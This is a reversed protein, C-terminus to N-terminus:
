YAGEYRAVTPNIRVVHRGHRLKEDLPGILKNKAINIFRDMEEGAKDNKGIMLIVDGEGPKDTRSGRLMNMPIWEMGEAEDRAQSAAIVPCNYEHGLGRAWLYARGIRLDDRDESGWTFGDVKDLQDFVILGPNFDKFLATLSKKDNLGADNRTILIRKGTREEFAKLCGDPDKNLEETTMGLSAQMNRFAVARSAEENNVWVVYRPDGAATMQEAMCTVNDALFTTKGVEPRAGVVVFDGGRLPGLSRQLEGLRWRLGAESLRASLATLSFPAFLDEKTIVRGREKEYDRVIDVADGLDVTDDDIASTGLTELRTAFDRRIYYEMIDKFVPESFEGSLLRGFVASVVPLEGKSLRASRTTIFWTAFAGWAIEEEAPHENFFEGLGYVIRSTSPQLLSHKLYPEFRDYWSRKRLLNLLELEIHPASL